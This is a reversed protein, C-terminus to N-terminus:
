KVKLQAKLKQTKGGATVVAQFTLAINRSQETWAIPKTVTGKSAIPDGATPGSCPQMKGAKWCGVVVGSLLIQIRVSAKAPKSAATTRVTWRWPVGVAPTKSTVTLTAKVPAASAAPAPLIAAVLVAAALSRM